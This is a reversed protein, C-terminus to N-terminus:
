FVAIVVLVLGILIVLGVLVAIQWEPIQNFFQQVGPLEHNQFTYRFNSGGSNAGTACGALIGFIWLVKHNWIIEWARSLVAGIDM